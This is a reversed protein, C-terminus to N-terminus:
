RFLEEYQPQERHPVAVPEQADPLVRRSDGDLSPHSSRRPERWSFLVAMPPTQQTMKHHLFPSSNNGSSSVAM